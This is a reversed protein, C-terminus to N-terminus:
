KREDYVIQTRSNITSIVSDIDKQGILYPPIEESVIMMISNDSMLISDVNELTQLFIVDLGAKPDFVYDARLMDDMPLLLNGQNYSKIFNYQSLNNKKEKELKLEVAERNVPIRDPSEKQVDSSLLVDLFAFAGEEEGSGETISFSNTVIASPGSGESSPLGMVKLNKGYYNIHALEFLSDINEDFVAPDPEHWQYEEYIAPNINQLESIGEPINDRFFASLERFEDTDFDLKKDKFWKSYNKQICLNLFHMRSSGSTVPEKGNLQGAVFSAYQEYTFGSQDAGLASGDTVIGAVTFATPIYYTKGDIAAANIINSYYASADFTKGNLYSTLDTLYADDLLDISNSAGLIVDPGTGSRIDSILSGSAMAMASYRNRDIDDISYTSDGATLYDGQDYLVLQAFYDQNQENFRRLAEGEFLSLSGGLSAVTIVTKGANPNKDTKELTYVVAPKYDKYKFIDDGRPPCGLVVKDDDFLLVSANQSEYRNINCDGFDLKCIGDGASSDYEYIGTAKTLYGTGDMLSSIMENDSLPKSDTVKEVKGTALDLKGLVPAKGVGEFMVTGNGGGYCQAVFSVEGPGFEKDLDICYLAKMDKSVAIKIRANNLARLIMVEYGEFLCFEDNFYGQGKIEEEIPSFDNQVLEGVQLGTDPDIDCYFMDTSVPDNFYLRIGKESECCTEVTHFDWGSKHQNMIEDLDIMHLLQGDQDFIGMLVIGAPRFEGDVTRVLTATYTMVYKDHCLYPGSPMVDRYLDADFGPDLEVRKSDYWPGEESVKKAGAKTKSCSSAALCFSALMAAALVSSILRKAIKM